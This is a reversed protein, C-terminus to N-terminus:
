KSIFIFYSRYPLIINWNMPIYYIGIELSTELKQCNNVATLNRLCWKHQYVRQLSFKVKLTCCLRSTIFMGYITIWQLSDNKMNISTWM